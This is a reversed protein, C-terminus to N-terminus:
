YYSSGCELVFYILSVILPILVNEKWNGSGIGHERNM